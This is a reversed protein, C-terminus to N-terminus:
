RRKTLDDNVVFSLSTSKSVSPGIVFDNKQVTSNDIQYRNILIPRLEAASHEDLKHDGIMISTLDLDPTPVNVVSSPPTTFMLLEGSGKNTEQDKLFNVFLAPSMTTTAGFQIYLITIVTMMMVTALTLLM